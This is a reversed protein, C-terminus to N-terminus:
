YCTRPDSSPHPSVQGRPFLVVLVIVGGRYVIAKEGVQLVGILGVGKREFVSTTGRVRYESKLSRRSFWLFCRLGGLM